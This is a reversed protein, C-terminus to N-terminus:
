SRKNDDKAGHAKATSSKKNDGKASRFAVIPCCNRSRDKTVRGPLPEHPWRAKSLRTTVGFPLVFRLLVFCNLVQKAREPSPIKM